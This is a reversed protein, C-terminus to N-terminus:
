ATLQMCARCRWLAFDVFSTLGFVLAYILFQNLSAVAMLAFCRLVFAAQVKFWINWPIVLVVDLSKNKCNDDGVSFMESEKTTISVNPHSM